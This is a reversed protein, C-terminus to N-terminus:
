VGSNRRRIKVKNFILSRDTACTSKNIVRCLGGEQQAFQVRRATLRWGDRPRLGAWIMRKCGIKHMLGPENLM